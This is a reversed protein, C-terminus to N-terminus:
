TGKKSEMTSCFLSGGKRGGEERSKTSGCAATLQTRAAERKKGKDSKGRGRATHVACISASICSSGEENGKKKGAHGGEKKRVVERNDVAPRM